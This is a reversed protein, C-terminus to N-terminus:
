AAPQAPRWFRYRLLVRLAPIGDWPTLKKKDEDRPDYRIPAQYIHV